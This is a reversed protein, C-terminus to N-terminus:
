MQYRTWMEAYAAEVSATYARVDCLPSERLRSRLGRRLRERQPRDAALSQAIGVMDDANRAVLHDLGIQGLMSAGVRATFRDGALTIVPVGM